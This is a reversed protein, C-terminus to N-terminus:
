TEDWINYNKDDVILIERHRITIGDDSKPTMSMDWTNFYEYVLHLVLVM